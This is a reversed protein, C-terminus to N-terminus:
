GKGYFWENSRRHGAFNFKFTTSSKLKNILPAILTLETRVLRDAIYELSLPKSGSNNRAVKNRRMVENCLLVMEAMSDVFDERKTIEYLISGDLNPQCKPIDHFTYLPQKLPKGPYRNANFKSVM